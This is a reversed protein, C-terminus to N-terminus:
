LAKGASWDLCIPSIHAHQDGRGPGLGHLHEPRKSRADAVSLFPGELM